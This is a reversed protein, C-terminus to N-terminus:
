LLYAVDCANLLTIFELFDGPFTTSRVDDIHADRSAAM